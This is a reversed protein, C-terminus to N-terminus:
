QLFFIQVTYPPKNNLFLYSTMIITKIYFVFVICFLLIYYLPIRYLNYLYRTWEKICVYLCKYLSPWTFSLVELRTVVAIMVPGTWMSVAPTFCCKCASDFPRLPFMSQEKMLYHLVHGSQRLFINLHHNSFTSVSLLTNLRIAINLRLNLFSWSGITFILTTFGSHEDDSPRQGNLIAMAIHSIIM